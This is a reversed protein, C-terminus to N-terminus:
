DGGTSISLYDPNRSSPSRSPATLAPWPWIPAPVALLGTMAAAQAAGRGCANPNTLLGGHGQTGGCAWSDGASSCSRSRSPATVRPSCPRSSRGSCLTWPCTGSTSPWASGACSPACLPATRSRTDCGACRRRASCWRRHGHGPSMRSSTTGSGSARQRRAM